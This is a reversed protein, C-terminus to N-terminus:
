ESTTSAGSYVGPGSTRIRPTRPLLIKLEACFPPRWSAIIFPDQFDLVEWLRNGGVVM